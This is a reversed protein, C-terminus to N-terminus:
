NERDERARWSYSGREANNLEGAGRHGNGTSYTPSLTPFLSLSTGLSRRLGRVVLALRREQGAGWGRGARCGEEGWQVSDREGCDGDRRRATGREQGRRM